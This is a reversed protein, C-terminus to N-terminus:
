ISTFKKLDVFEHNNIIKLSRISKFFSEGVMLQNDLGEIVIEIIHNSNLFETLEEQKM